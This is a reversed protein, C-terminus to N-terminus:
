RVKFHLTTRLKGGEKREAVSVSDFEEFAELGKRIRPLQEKFEAYQPMEGFADGGKTEMLTTWEAAFKRLADFDLEMWMGKREGGAGAEAQAILDLSQLKSTSAVFWKDGVTVSPLFDDNFFPFSFFYTVLDNKESSIPKQMPIEEGALESLTKFINKLSGDIQGWSDTLKSRDTVPSIVSARVFRGGDVLDQPMGPIPPMTGKLDVVLATEEGLGSGAVSLADWLGLADARFKDNFMGFGQQFGAFEGADEIELGAVKEAMAYATEVIVEGYERARKSYEPTTIWNGFLMVDEGKGLGGLQHGATFDIGGRDTGGFMEFKVGEDLVVLGGVSESSALALLSEEKDGILELLSALDRTDGLGDSGALGDRIGLAMDKLSGAVSAKVLGQEGYLFGVVKEDKYGDVFSISDNAALSDDVSEVLPCAEANDGLYFMVYNGLTGAALVLNKTKMAAIMRDVDAPELTQEIDSRSEEMQSALFEGSIKYGKFEAGGQTFEAPEVAEGLLQPLSELSSTLNEKAMGLSEEDLAKVGVLVPPMAAGELLAMEKGLEKTMGMMAEASAQSMGSLDGEKAGEVFAETMVRMQYYNSRQSLKMLNALQPGTGKGTAMFIEQGIFKGAAELDDAIEEEPDMGEEEQAVERIFGWTKLTRLRNVIEKGDYVAMVSETEKSLHAVIGLMAAREGATLSKVEPAPTDGPAVMPTKEVEVAAEPAASQQEKKGCSSLVLASAPLVSLWPRFSKM